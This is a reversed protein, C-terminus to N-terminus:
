GLFAVGPDESQKFNNIQRTTNKKNTKPNKNTKQNKQKNTKTPKKTKHKTQNPKTKNLTYCKTQDLKMFLNGSYYTVNYSMLNFICWSASNKPNQQRKSEPGYSNKAALLLVDKTTKQSLGTDLSFGLNQLPLQPTQTSIHTVQM